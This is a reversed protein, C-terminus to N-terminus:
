SRVRIPWSLRTSSASCLHDCIASAHRGASYTGCEQTPPLPLPTHCWHTFPYRTLCRSPLASPTHLSSHTGFPIDNDEKGLVLEVFRCADGLTKMAFIGHVRHLSEADLPAGGPSILVTAGIADPMGIACKTAIFGGLSNGLLIPRSM